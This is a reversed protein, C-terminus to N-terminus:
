LLMKQPLGAIMALEALSLEKLSKGFYVMAAAGVGYARNGLYVRNLYLELIKEKSLEKDIKIALMIENFKRLFTKKSTLFFNRAVQMTITSGGQSKTGTKLMRVTARALGVVDVGPHEFFRQDETAILAYILTKPIQDYTVPIRKKEGYEQILLGEKSFIQLPVQLQVTKLSDINPLQSALYLYLFSIIVSLLFILSMLAWLGKRWFYAMKKM